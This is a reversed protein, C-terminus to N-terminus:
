EPRRRRSSGSRRRSTGRRWYRPTGSTRRSIRCRTGSAKRLQKHSWRESALLERRLREAARHENRCAERVQDRVRELQRGLAGSYLQGQAAMENHTRRLDIDLKRDTDTIWSGLDQDRNRMQENHLRIETPVDLLRTFVLAVVAGGGLVVLVAYIILEM